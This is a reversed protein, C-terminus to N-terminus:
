TEALGSQKTKVYSLLCRSQNQLHGPLIYHHLVGLFYTFTFDNTGFIIIVSSYVPGPFSLVTRLVMRPLLLITLMWYCFISIFEILSRFYLGLNNIESITFDIRSYTTRKQDPVIFLTTCPLNTLDAHRGITNFTHLAKLM